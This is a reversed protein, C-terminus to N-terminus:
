RSRAKRDRFDLQTPATEKNRKGGHPTRPQHIFAVGSIEVYHKWLCVEVIDRRASDVISTRNLFRRSAIGVSSYVDRAAV